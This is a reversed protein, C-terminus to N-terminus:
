ALASITQDSPKEKSVVMIDKVDIRRIVIDTNSADDHLEFGRTWRGHAILLWDGIMIDKQKPGVAYVQGWRPRIGTTTSNDDLLIIGKVLRDAFEMNHVIVDDRLPVIESCSLKYAGM